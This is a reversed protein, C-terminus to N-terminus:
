RGEETVPLDVQVTCGQASTAFSCSGGLLEARERLNRLGHGGGALTTPMGRGDDAVSVRLCRQAGADSGEEGGEVYAAVAVTVAIHTAGSHRVANTLAEQVIRLCAVETASDLQPLRDCQLTIAVSAGNGLTACVQRLAGALGRETLIPPALRQVASRTEDLADDLAVLLGQLTERDTPPTAPRQALVQLQLRIATLAQGIGDHLDRAIDRREGEQLRIAQAALERIRTQQAKLDGLAQRLAESRELVRSELTATLAQLENRSAEIRALLATVEAEARRVSRLPLALLLLALLLGLASATLALKGATQWLPQLDLAVAVEGEIPQALPTKHWAVRPATGDLSSQPPTALVVGRRDYVIVVAVATGHRWGDIQDRLKWTDYRWLSPQAAVERQILQRVQEGVRRATAQQEAVQLWVWGLPAVVAVVTAVLVALPRLQARLLQSPSASVTSM